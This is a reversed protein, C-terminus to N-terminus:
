RGTPHAGPFQTAYRRTLGTEITAVRRLSRVNGLVPRQFARSGDTAAVRGWSFRTAGVPASLEIRRKVDVRSGNDNLRTRKRLAKELDSSCARFLRVALKTM